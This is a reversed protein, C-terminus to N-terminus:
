TLSISLLPLGTSTRSSIEMFSCEWLAQRAHLATIWVRDHQSDEHLPNFWIQAAGLSLQFSSVIGLALTRALLSCYFLPHEKANLFQRAHGMRHTFTFTCLVASLKMHQWRPWILYNIDKYAELLACWGLSVSRLQKHLHKLGRDGFWIVAPTGM